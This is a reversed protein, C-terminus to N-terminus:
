TIIGPLRMTRYNLREASEFRGEFMIEDCNLGSYVLIKYHRFHDQFCELEPIGGGIDLSIGTTALVQKVKPYIKRGKCYAAYNTYNTLKAIATIIAHALSNTESKVQVISKKLHAMVSIPQGMTKIGRYGSVVPMKVSHLVVTLTDLPNM